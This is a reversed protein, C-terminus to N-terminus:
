QKVVKLTKVNDGVTVNVIYTGASLESMDVQTSTASINKSIVEQGIMNIVRISSIESTYSVNLVDKVPNPYAMFNNNDFLDSSLVEQVEIGFTGQDTGYGYDDVQIYYTTGPTLGAQVLISNYIITTGGDQDCGIPAGLTSLDSCTVGTANYLAIETDTASAGAIDTTIIVEGSAPAVFSFWVSGNIGDEFCSAIPENTESTAGINNYQTGTSIANVVLPIANCLDDNTAPCNYVFNGLPLNCTTDSGHLLTLNVSSGSAFPGVNVVGIASVPWSNTGDTISPTGSGLATVNVDISYQATGCTPVLTTTAAPPTCSAAVINVTFDATEGYTGSYCPNSPTQLGDTAVIRMRHQGLPMTGPMVFSANHTVIPTNPALGTYVIESADLNFDDNADIWIVINYDYGFGTDFSIQVNNNIGQSM